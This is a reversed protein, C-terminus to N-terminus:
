SAQPLDNRDASEGISRQSAGLLVTQHRAGKGGPEGRRDAGGADGHM